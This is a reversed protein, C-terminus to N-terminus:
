KFKNKLNKVMALHSEVVPITNNVIALLATDTVDKQAKKLKDLLEQHDDVMKDAWAKDWDKGTKDNITVTNTTDVTPAIINTHMSLYNKVTADLKEHDKLMMRAHSKLDSSASKAIGAKMWIIEKTNGPVAVNIFDQEPSSKAMMSSSDAPKMASATSDPGGTGGSNNNCAALSLAGAALLFPYLRKLTKM